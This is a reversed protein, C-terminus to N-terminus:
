KDIQNHIEKKNAVPTAWPKASQPERLPAAARLDLSFTAAVTKQLLRQGPSRRNSSIVESSESTKSVFSILNKFVDIGFDQWCM